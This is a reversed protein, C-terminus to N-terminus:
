RKKQQVPLRTHWEDAEPKNEDEKYFLSHVGNQFGDDFDPDIDGYYMAALGYGRELLYEVQWRHARVGRTINTAKNNVIMFKKNNGVWNKTITIGTDNYVTQNGYFNLGLFMPHKSKSNKPLYILLNLILNKNNHSIIIKIEKRVAKGDLADKNISLTKFEMREPLGPARGYVEAAFLQM